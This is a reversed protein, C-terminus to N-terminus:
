SELALLCWSLTEPPPLSSSDTFSCLYAMFLELSHSIKLSCKRGKLVARWSGWLCMVELFDHRCESSDELVFMHFFLSITHNQPASLVVTCDLDNNYSEPWGPSQVQGFEAHYERNCDQSLPLSHHNMTADRFQM